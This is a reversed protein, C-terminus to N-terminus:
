IAGNCYCLAGYFVTKIRDVIYTRLPEGCATQPDIFNPYPQPGPGPDVMNKVKPYVAAILAPDGGDGCVAEINGMSQAYAVAVNSDTPYFPGGANPASSSPCPLSPDAPFLPSGFTDLETQVFGAWLLAQQLNIPCSTQMMGCADCKLGRAGCVSSCTPAPGEDFCVKTADKKYPAINVRIWASTNGPAFSQNFAGRDLCETKNFPQPQPGYVYNELATLRFLSCCNPHFIYHLGHRLWTGPNKFGGPVLYLEGAIRTSPQSCCNLWCQMRLPWSQMRLSRQQASSWKHVRLASQLRTLHTSWNGEGMTTSCRPQLDPCPLSTLAACKRM